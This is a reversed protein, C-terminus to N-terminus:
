VGHVVEGKERLERKAVHPIALAIGILLWLFRPYILHLFIGGILFGIIGIGLAVTMNAYDSSGARIFDQYGTQMGRFVVWLVVGFAALGLLGQDAAIQLYLSHASRIERRPDLGLQRSYEQYYIPFNDLGVGLLPRDTFMLLASTNESLRGRFSIEERADQESGPFLDIVTRMRETYQEPIFQFLPVAVMITILLALLNPPRRVFMVVLIGVLAIFGGRSFTFIISLV